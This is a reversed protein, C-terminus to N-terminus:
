SLCDRNKTSCTVFFSLPLILSFCDSASFRCICVSLCLALSLSTSLVMAFCASVSLRVCPHLPIHSPAPCPSAAFSPAPLHFRPHFPFGLLTLCLLIAQQQMVVRASIHVTGLIHLDLGHWPRQRHTHQPRTSAAREERYLQALEERKIRRKGMLARQAGPHGRQSKFISIAMSNGLDGGDHM